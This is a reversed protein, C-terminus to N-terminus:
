AFGSCRYVILFCKSFFQFRKCAADLSYVHRNASPVFVRGGVVTPQGNAISTDPFAFAWKLRLRPVQRPTLGANAASQFRSNALDNGWGNWGPGSTSFATQTNSCLGATAPKNGQGLVKGTLFEAITQPEHRPPWDVCSAPKTSSYLFLRFRTCGRVMGRVMALAPALWMEMSNPMKPGVYAMEVAQEEAFWAM